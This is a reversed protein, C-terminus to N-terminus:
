GRGRDFVDVEGLLVHLRRLVRTTEHLQDCVVYRSPAVVGQKECDAEYLLAVSDDRNPREKRKWFAWTAFVLAILFVLCGAAVCGWIWLPTESTFGEKVLVRIQKARSLVECTYTGGNVEDIGCHEYSGCQLGLLECARSENGPLPKCNGKRGNGEFGEKCTYGFTGPVERCDAFVPDCDNGHAVCFSIRECKGGENKAFGPKCDCRFSGPTNVCVSDSSCSDPDDCENIDQCARGPKGDNGGYGKWCRCTPPAGDNNICDSYDLCGGRNDLCENIDVCASGQVKRYPNCRCEFSGPTNVCESDHLIFKCPNQKSAGEDI